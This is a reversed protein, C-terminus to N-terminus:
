PDKPRRLEFIIRLLSLIFVLFVSAIVAFAVIEDIFRSLYFYDQSILWALNILIAVQNIVLAINHLKDKYPRYVIIAILNTISIAAFAFLPYEILQNISLSFTLSLILVYTLYYAVYNEHYNAQKLPKKM